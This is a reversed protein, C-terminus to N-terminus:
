ESKPRERKQPEDGGPRRGQPGGDPGGQGDPRRRGEGGVGPGGPGGPGGAGQPRPPMLEDMTLKGDGNKDLKKLAAAANAIESEDVVGDNNADLAAMVPPRMREGGGPGGPGGPGGQGRRFEGPPGDSPRGERPAGDPRQGDRPPRNPQNQDQAATTWVTAGLALAALLTSTTKM